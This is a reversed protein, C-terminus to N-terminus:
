AGEATPAHDNSPQPMEILDHANAKADEVLQLESAFSDLSRRDNAISSELLVRKITVRAITASSFENQTM